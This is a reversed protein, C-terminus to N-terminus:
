QAPADSTVPTLRLWRRHVGATWPWRLLAEVSWGLTPASAVVLTWERVSPADGVRSVRLAVSGADASPTVGLTGFAGPIAMVDLVRTVDPALLYAWWETSDYSDWETILLIGGPVSAQHRITDGDLVLPTARGVHVVRRQHQTLATEGPLSELTLMTM